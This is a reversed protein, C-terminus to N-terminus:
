RTFSLNRTMFLKSLFHVARRRDNIFVEFHELKTLMKGSAAVRDLVADVDPLQLFYSLTVFKRLRGGLMELLGYDAWHVCANVM